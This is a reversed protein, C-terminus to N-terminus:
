HVQQTLQNLQRAMTWPLQLHNTSANLYTHNMPYISPFSSYFLKHIDSLCGIFKENSKWESIIFSYKCDNGALMDNNNSKPNSEERFGETKSDDVKSVKGIDNSDISIESNYDSGSVPQNEHCFIVLFSPFSFFHM